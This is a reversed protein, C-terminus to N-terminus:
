NHQPHQITSFTQRRRKQKCQAITENLQTCFKAETLQHQFKLEQEERLCTQELLNQEYDFRRKAQQEELANIKAQAQLRAM